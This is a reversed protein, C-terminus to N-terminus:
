VKYKIPNSSIDSFITALRDDLGFKMLNLEGNQYCVCCSLELKIIKNIKSM